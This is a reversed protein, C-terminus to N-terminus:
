RTRLVNYEVGVTFGHPELGNSPQGPIDPASPLLIYEYGARARFKRSIRYDGFVGPAYAFYSGSGIDGPFRIWVGGFLFKADFDLDRFKWFRYKGGLLYDSQTEGDDGSNNFHLWRAEGIVGLKSTVNFDFSVGPGVLNKVGYDPSFDSFEGGAWVVGEGGNVSPVVQAYLAAASFIVGLILIKNISKIV